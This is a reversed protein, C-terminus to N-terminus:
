ITTPSTPVDSPAVCRPDVEYPPPADRGAGADRQTSADLAPNRGGSQAADPEDGSASCGLLLLGCAWGARLRHRKLERRSM